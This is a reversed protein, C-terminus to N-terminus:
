DRRHEDYFVTVGYPGENRGEGHVVWVTDPADHEPPGWDGFPYGDTFFIVKQVDTYWEQEMAYNWWAMFDTGGFGALEYETLDTEETFTVPSHVDTDFCAIHITYSTFQDMIGKIESLFDTLMDKSISGSTDIAVAIEVHDNTDMSPMTIGTGFTRKNPIMWTYDNRICSQLTIQLFERWDVKPNLLEDILREFGAPVKGASAVAAEVLNNKWFDELDKAEEESLKRGNRGEGEEGPNSPYGPDGPHVDLTPKPTVNNQILDEYVDESTWGLYKPDYLGVKPMKMGSEILSANIVYDCAMNYLKPDRDYRRTLHHFVCHLVEHAVLFVNEDKDLSMIFEPNYYLNRGDVAATSLGSAKQMDTVEVLNLKMALHAFFPHKFLMHTRATRIVGEADKKM